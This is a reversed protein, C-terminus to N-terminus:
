RELRKPNQFPAGWPIGEFGKPDEKMQVALATSHTLLLALLIGNLARLCSQDRITRWSRMLRNRRTPSCITSALHWRGSDFFIIRTGYQSPYTLNIESENGRWNYQQNCDECCRAPCTSRGDSSLRWTRLFVNIRRRGRTASPSAPLNIMSRPCDFVKSPFIRLPLRRTKLNTSSLTLAKARRNLIPEVKLETGWVINQFGKPDNTM